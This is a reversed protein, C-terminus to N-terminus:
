SYNLLCARSIEMLKSGCCVMASQGILARANMQSNHLQVIVVVLVVIIIGIEKAIVHSFICLQTGSIFIALISYERVRMILSRKLFRYKDKTLLHFM